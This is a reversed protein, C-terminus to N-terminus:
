VVNIYKNDILYLLTKAISNDLEDDQTEKATVFYKSGFMVYGKYHICWGNPKTIDLFGRWENIKIGDPTTWEKKNFDVANPLLNLLDLLEFKKVGLSSLKEQLPKKM